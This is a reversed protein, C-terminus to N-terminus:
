PPTGQRSVGRSVHVGRGSVFDAAPGGGKTGISLTFWGFANWPEHREAAAFADWDPYDNTEIDGLEARM